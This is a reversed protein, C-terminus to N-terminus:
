QGADPDIDVAEAQWRLYATSIMDLAAAGPARLRAMRDLQDDLWEILAARGAICPGNERELQDAYTKLFDARM